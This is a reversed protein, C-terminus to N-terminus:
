LTAKWSITCGFLIFVYGTLSRNKDLDVAYDSDVFGVVSSSNTFARYYVLVVNATGRLYRLIWKVAQWHEKGPNAMYRSVVSVAQLIDLHTCVIAYMMSGVASAYPVRSRHEKEEESQPSLDVLPKFHTALLTSVPKSRHIGFSELVKEIYSKQSLILKGARRDRHIEM